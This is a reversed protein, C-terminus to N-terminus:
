QYCWWITNAVRKSLQNIFPIIRFIGMMGAEGRQSIFSPFGHAHVSLWEIPYPHSEQGGTAAPRM